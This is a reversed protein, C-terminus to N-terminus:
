KCLYLILATAGFKRKNKELQSPFFRGTLNFLRHFDRNLSPVAKLFKM